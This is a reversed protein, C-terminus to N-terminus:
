YLDHSNCGRDMYSIGRTHKVNILPQLLVKRIYIQTVNLLQLVPMLAHDAQYTWWHIHSAIDYQETCGHM